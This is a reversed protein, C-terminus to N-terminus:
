KAVFFIFLNEVVYKFASVYVYLNQVTEFVAIIFAICNLIAVLHIIGVLESFYFLCIMDLTSM